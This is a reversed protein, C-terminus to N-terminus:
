KLEKNVVPLALCAGIILWLIRQYLIEHMQSFLMFSIFILAFVRDIPELQSVKKALIFKSFRWVGWAASIAGVLGFEALVWLFTNHIQLPYSFSKNEDFIFVGLGVGTIPASWWMKLAELNAKWRVTDSGESSILSAMPLGAGHLLKPMVLSLGYGFGAAFLAFFLAYRANKEFCFCLVVLVCVVAIATRSGTLLVGFCLVSMAVFFYWYRKCVSAYGILLAVACILQFAFANRNAAFGEFNSLVPVGRVFNGFRVVFHFVVIVSAVVVVTQAIRRVGLSGFHHSILYGASLYGLLVVAGFVRGGLAWQTVGIKMWGNFFGALLILLLVVIYRNLEPIKWAPKKKTIVANLFLAAASFLAFPDALNVNIEGNQLALHVQFFVGVVTAFGLLWFSFGEQLPSTEASIPVEKKDLIDRRKIAFLPAVMLVVLTSCVGVVVSAAVAEPAPVGLKGMVFVAALERVGWGGVSIPMSAAFSVIAAACLLSLASVNPAVVQFCILFALLMFLQGLLGLGMVEVLRIANKAKFLQKALLREFEGGFLWYNLCCAVSAVFFVGFFDFAGLFGLSIDLGFLGLSGILALLFSSTAVVLREYASISSNLVSSVGFRNLVLQRGAVQGLLPIFVLGALNGAMSAALSTRASILIGFHRLVRWFRLSVIMLNCILLLGLPFIVSFDFENLKRYLDEPNAIWVGLALLLISLVVNIKKYM